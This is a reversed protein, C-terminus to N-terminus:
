KSCTTLVPLKWLGTLSVKLQSRCNSGKHAPFIGNLLLSIYPIADSKAAQLLDLTIAHPQGERAAFVLVDDPQVRRHPSREQWRIDLPPHVPCLCQCIAQLALHLHHSGCDTTRSHIIHRCHRVHLAVQHCYILRAEINEPFLHIKPDEYASALFPSARIIFAIACCSM